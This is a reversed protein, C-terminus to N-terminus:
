QAPVFVLTPAICGLFQRCLVSVVLVRFPPILYGVGPDALGRPRGCGLPAWEAGDLEQQDTQTELGECRGANM